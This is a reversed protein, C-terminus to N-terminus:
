TLQPLLTAGPDTGYDGGEGTEMARELGVVLAVGGVPLDLNDVTVLPAGDLTPDRRLTAVFPYSSSVAEGAGTAIRLRALEELLPVLFLEPAVIPTTPGGSVVVVVQDPGGVEQLDADSLAALDELFGERLMQGLVDPPGGDAPPGSALRLALARAAAAALEEPPAEPPLGVISALRRRDEVDVGAMPARVRLTALLRGGALSVARATEELSTADADGHTVIVIRQGALRESVLYPLVEESFRNLDDVRDELRRVQQGLESLDSRLGDVLADNLFATGALVGLGLALFVAVISILHQRWSIM